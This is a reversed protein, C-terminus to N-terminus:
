RSREWVRLRLGLLIGIHLRLMHKGTRRGGGGEDGQDPHREPRSSSGRVGTWWIVDDKRETILSYEDKVVGEM